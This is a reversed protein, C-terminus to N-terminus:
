PALEPTRGPEAQLLAALLAHPERGAAYKHLKDAIVSHWDSARPEGPAEHLGSRIVCGGRLKVIVESCREAPFAATLQPDVRVTTREFVAAVDSEAFGDLVHEVDVAGHTLAVSVPYVLNFQAEESSTPLVRALSAAQEFTRITVAEISHTDLEHNTRLELAARVAPHAWRCCPYPKVYVDLLHWRDGLTEEDDRARLTSELSTFGSRALFASITGVLAGWGVADKTMAPARVSRMIPAIPAHYEALGLAHALQGSDLGLLRGSAAAAGLAGWTGTAHFTQDRRHLCIGARIALEYGIAIALRITDETAGAAEATALAASIVCAGPHGKALRHGDDLDLANALVANAVAAGPAALPRGDLLATAGHGPHVNSAYDAAIVAASAARGAATVAAFDLLLWDLHQQVDPPVDDWTLGLVLSALSEATSNV